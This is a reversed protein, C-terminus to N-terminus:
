IDYLRNGRKAMARDFAKVVEPSFQRGSGRYLEALAEEHSLTKRYPRNSTMADYADAVSLIMSEVSLSKGDLGNPYGRGDYREHHSKIIDVSKSLFDIDEIIHAGKEPHQKVENWESETLNHTKNLIQEDIGIKGIDHLLAAYRLAETRKESLHMEDATICCYAEVRKSHGITYEDKAEIASALSKVTQLYNHQLDKYLIFVYRALLFPLFFLVVFFWSYAAYVTTILIGIMGVIIISLVSWLLNSTWIRFISRHSTIALYVAIIVTNVFTSLCVAAIMQGASHTIESIVSDLGRGSHIIRGGLLGYVLSFVSITLAYTSANFLSIEPRTNFIHHSKGHYKTVSGVVSVAAVWAAATPGCVLAACIAVASTITVCNDDNITVTQTESLIALLAFFIFPFAEHVPEWVSLSFLAAFGALIIFYLYLRRSLKALM